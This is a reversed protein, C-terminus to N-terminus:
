RSPLFPIVALGHLIFLDGVKRMKKTTSAINRWAIGGLRKGPVSPLQVFRTRFLERLSHILRSIISGIM